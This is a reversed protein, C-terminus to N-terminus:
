RRSHFLRWRQAGARHHLLRGKSGGWLTGDSLRVGCTFDRYLVTPRGGRLARLEARLLREGATPPLSQEHVIESTWTAFPEESIGSLVLCCILSIVNIEEIVNVVPGIWAERVAPPAHQCGM